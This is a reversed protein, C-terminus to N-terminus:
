VETRTQKGSIQLLTVIFGAITGLGVLFGVEDQFTACQTGDSEVATRFIWLALFFMYGLELIVLLECLQLYLTRHIKPPDQDSIAYLKTVSFGLAPFGLLLNLLGVVNIMVANEICSDGDATGGLRLFLVIAVIVALNILVLFFTRVVLRRSFYSNLLQGKWLRFTLKGKRTQAQRRIRAIIKAEMDEEEDEELVISGGESGATSIQDSEIPSVPPLLLEGSEDECPSARTELPSSTHDDEDLGSAGLLDPLLSARGFPGTPPM